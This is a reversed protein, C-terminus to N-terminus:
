LASSNSFIKRLLSAVGGGMFLFALIIVGLGILKYFFKTGGWSALKSEAFDIAGFNDYMWNSKWIIVFGVIIFIIGLVYSM